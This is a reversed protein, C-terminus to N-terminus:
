SLAETKSEEVTAPRICIYEWTEDDDEGWSWDGRHYEGTIGEIVYTGPAAFECFEDLWYRFGMGVAIWHTSGDHDLVEYDHKYLGPPGSYPGLVRVLIRGPESYAPLEEPADSM